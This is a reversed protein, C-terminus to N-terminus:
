HQKQSQAAFFPSSVYFSAVWTCLWPVGETVAAASRWAPEISEKGRRRGTGGTKPLDERKQQREGYPCAMWRSRDGKVTPSGPAAVLPPLM